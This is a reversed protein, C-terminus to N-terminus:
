ECFSYVDHEYFVIIFDNVAVFGVYIVFGSRPCYNRHGDVSPTAKLIAWIVFWVM